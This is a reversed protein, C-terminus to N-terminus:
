GNKMEQDNAAQKEGYQLRPRRTGIASDPFYLGCSRFPFHIRINKIDLQQIQPLRKSKSFGQLRRLICISQNQLLHARRVLNDKRKGPLGSVQRPSVGQLGRLVLRLLRGAQCRRRHREDNKGKLL